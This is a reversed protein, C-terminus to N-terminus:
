AGENGKGMTQLKRMSGYLKTILGFELEDFLQCSGQGFEKAVEVCFRAATELAVPHNTGTSIGPIVEASTTAVGVVPSNTATAPQMIGNIHYLGNGYPTIDQMTIPFTVPPKGTVVRMIRLLDRSVRLIYGQKVTPSIAFGNFNIIENGKTADISLIAAMRDDLTLTNMVKRDVPSAMFPVPEHPQIPARPCIHTTIIVDGNLLDGKEQMDALKLATAITVIAGDADSVAGIRHPRAGVGGLRGIIGLTPAAGGGSRGSSGRILVKLFDTAHGGEEVPTVEIETKAGIERLRAAIKKGTVQPDDILEFAEIVHKLLVKM